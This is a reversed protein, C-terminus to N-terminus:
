FYKWVGLAIAKALDKQYNDDQLLKREQMNSLFGCEILVGKPELKKYMYTNEPIKKIKREGRTYNNLEEQIISALEKSDENYFVQPGSYRYDPLYNLHISLYISANSENIM